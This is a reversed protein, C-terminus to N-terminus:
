AGLSRNLSWLASSSFRGGVPAPYLWARRPMRPLGGRRTPECESAARVGQAMRHPRDSAPGPLLYYIVLVCRCIRRPPLLFGGFDNPPNTALSKSSVLPCSEVPPRTRIRKSPKASVSLRTPRLEHTRSSRGDRSLHTVRTQRTSAGELNGLSANSASQKRRVM